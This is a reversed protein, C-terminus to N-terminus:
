RTARFATPSRTCSRGSCPPKRGAASPKRRPAHHGQRPRPGDQAQRERPLRPEVRNRRAQRHRARHRRRPPFVDYPQRMSDTGKYGDIHHAPPASGSILFVWVYDKTTGSQDFDGWRLDHLTNEVPQGLASPARPQHLPRRPRRVRRGRQLPHAAPRRPHDRRRTPSPRATPITSSARSSTAPPCSTRSGQQYQIGISECGFEDAIRVAAVYTKCQWLVQGRHARHGRRHRPPVEHGQGQALRVRRPGRRRHGPHRRLLPRVPLAAGQLRRDQLPARRPHHRQVHGHLGRRLHGHHVEPPPPRRRNEQRARPGQAARHGPSRSSTRPGTNSPAPRSGPRSARGLFFDDTFDASWLTSYKVGAKTLSGNLNLM